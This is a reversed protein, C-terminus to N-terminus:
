VLLKRRVVGALGLLGTGFIFIGAPEPATSSVLVDVNGGTIFVVDDSANLGALSVTFTQTPPPGVFTQQNLTGLVGVNSGQSITGSEGTQLSELQLTLSGPAGAQGVLSSLNIAIYDNNSIEADGQADGLIGLGTENPGRNNLALDALCNSASLCGATHQGTLGTTTEGALAYGDVTVTFGGFLFNSSAQAVGASDYTQISSPNTIPGANTLTTNTPATFDITDATATMAFGFLSVLMLLHKLTFRM